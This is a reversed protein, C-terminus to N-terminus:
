RRRSILALGTELFYQPLLVILGYIGSILFTYKAFKV